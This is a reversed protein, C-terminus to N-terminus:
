RSKFAACGRLGNRPQRTSQPTHDLQSDLRARPTPEGTNSSLDKSLRVSPSRSLPEQAYENDVVVIQLALEERPQERTRTDTWEEPGGVAAGREFGEAFFLLRDVHDHAVQQHGLHVADLEELLDAVFAVLRRDHDRAAGVLVRLALHLGHRAGV